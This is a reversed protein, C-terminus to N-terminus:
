RNVWRSASSEQGQPPQKVACTSGLGSELMQRAEKKRACILAYIQMQLQELHKAGRQNSFNLESREGKEKGDSGVDKSASMHCSPVRSRRQMQICLSSSTSTHIQCSFAAHEFGQKNPKSWPRQVVHQPSFFMVPKQPHLPNGSQEPLGKRGARKM